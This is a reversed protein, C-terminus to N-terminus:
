KTRQTAVQKCATRTNGAREARGKGELERKNGRRGKKEDRKERKEERERM